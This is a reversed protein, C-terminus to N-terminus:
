WLDPWRQPPLQFTVGVSIDWFSYDEFFGGDGAHEDVFAHYYRVDARLGLLRTLQHMMGVGAAFTLNDQDTDYEETGPVSFIAHTLGLGLTGYPRWIPARPISIPVVLHGMLLLADTNLDVGEPVLDAVDEDRFFHGYWAADLELGLALGRWAPLYYGVSMGAGGRATEVDGAVKADLHPSLYLQANAPTAVSAVFAVGLAVYYRSRM